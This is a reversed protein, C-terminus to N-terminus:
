GQYDKRSWEPLLFCAKFEFPLCSSCRDVRVNIGGLERVPPRPACRRSSSDLLTWDVTNHRHIVAANETSCLGSSRPRKRARPKNRSAELTRWCANSWAASSSSEDRSVRRSNYSHTSCSALDRNSGNCRICVVVLKMCSFGVAGCVFIQSTNVGMRRL